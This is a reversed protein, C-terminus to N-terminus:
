VNGKEKQAKKEGSDEDMLFFFAKPRLGVFKTMIKGGLEEKMLGILKKNKSKPLLRDIKYNSTDSRKEVDKAIHEYVDEAKIHM